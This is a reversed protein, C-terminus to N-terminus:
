LEGSMYAPFWGEHASKLEALSITAQGQVNLTADGTVTGIRIVDIGKVHAQTIIKAVEGAKCTLVYRAQDEAFLAEHNMADLNVGLGSALAMEIATAALGGDSIDHVATVQSHNILNRVFDGHAKEKALDVPPPAGEERGLIERLYMSQGLHTGHGGLLLVAEDAAKFALTTM